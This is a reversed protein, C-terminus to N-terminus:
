WKKVVELYNLYFEPDDEFNKTGDIPVWQKSYGICEKGFNDTGVRKTEEKIFTVGNRFSLPIKEEFIFDKEDKMKEVMKKSSLGYLSKHSFLTRATSSVANKQCDRQRWIFYNVVENEPVNFARSDFLATFEKEKFRLLKRYEQELPTSEDECDDIDPYDLMQRTENLKKEVAEAFIKNFECTVISASVSIIKSLNNNFWLESSKNSTNMLVLSIEDSQTYGMVVSQIKECLAKTTLKMTEAMIDDVPKDFGKTFNHFAKGDLRIIVPLRNILKNRTVYEYEKMRDGLTQEM